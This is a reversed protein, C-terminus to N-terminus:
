GQFKIETHKNLFPFLFKEGNGYSYSELIMSEILKNDAISIKLEDFIENKKSLLIKSNFDTDLNSNDFYIIGFYIPKNGLALSWSQLTNMDTNSFYNCFEPHTHLMIIRNYKFKIKSLHLYTNHFDFKIYGTNGCGVDIIKDDVIIAYCEKKFFM